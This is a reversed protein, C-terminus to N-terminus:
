NGLSLKQDARRVVIEELYGYGFWKNVKVGVVSLIKMTSYVNLKLIRIIKSRYFLQCKPGWHCIGLKADKNYTVKVPSWQKPIMEEIIKLEYMAAKTKTISMTYKRGSNGTKLYELDNNFFFDVHITLHGLSGQLALPM